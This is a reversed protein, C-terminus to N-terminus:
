LKAMAPHRAFQDHMHRCIFICWSARTPGARCPRLRSRGQAAAALMAPAAGGRPQQAQYIAQDSAGSEAHPCKDFLRM